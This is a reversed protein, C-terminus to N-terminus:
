FDIIFIWFLQTYVQGKPLKAFVFCCFCIVAVAVLLCLEGFIRVDVLIKRCIEAFQRKAFCAWDAFSCGRCPLYYNKVCNLGSNECLIVLNARQSVIAICM